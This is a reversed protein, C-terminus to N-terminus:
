NNKLIKLNKLDSELGRLVEIAEFEPWAAKQFQFQTHTEIQRSLRKRLPMERLGYIIGLHDRKETGRFYKVHVLREREVAGTM